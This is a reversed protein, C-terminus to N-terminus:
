QAPSLPRQWVEVDNGSEDNTFAGVRTYGLRAFLRRSAENDARITAQVVRAGGSQAQEEAQRVLREGYGQGAHTEAVSVHRIEWQYWNVRTAEACGVVNGEADTAAVYGDRGRAVTRADYKAGLQNRTNLLNAIQRTQADTIAASRVVPAQAIAEPLARPRSQPVPREQAAPTLVRQWVGLNQQSRANHFRGVQRYGAAALAQQTATDSQRVTIQAIRAGNASAQGEAIQLLQPTVAAADRGSAVALQSLDAQYWQANVTRVAGVVDGNGDALYRYRVAEAQVESAAVTRALQGGRQVLEAVQQAQAQTMETGVYGNVEGRRRAREAELRQREAIEREQQERLRRAEAPTPKRGPRRRSQGPEPQWRTVAFMAAMQTKDERRTFLRDTFERFRRTQREWADGELPVEEPNQALHAGRRSSPIARVEENTMRQAAAAIGLSIKIQSQIVAPELTGDWLRFEVHDRAQGSVGAWNVAAYRGGQNSYADRVARYPASLDNIPSCYGDGRHNGNPNNPNQAMRYLIDQDKAVLNTFRAHRDPQSDYDGIGVHVHGGVSTTVRGGNRRVIECVKALQDWYEPEDYMVPSVIEGSVSGDREFGWKGDNYGQSSHYHAQSASRTLGAAYLERGIAAIDGGSFEIEVGFGRGGDRTGLGGTANERMYPVAADGRAKRTKAADYDAQFAAMDEAYRVPATTDTAQRATRASEEAADAASSEAAVQEVVAQRAQAVDSVTVQDRVGRITVRGIGPVRYLDTISSFPRRAREDIIAQARVAGVGPLRALEALTATNLNMIPVRSVAQAAAVDAQEQPTAQVVTPAPVSQPAAAASAQAAPPEDRRSRCVHASGMFQGCDSCRSTRVLGGFALPRGSRLEHLALLYASDAAALHSGSGARVAALEQRLSTSGTRELYAIYAAMGEVTCDSNGNLGAFRSTYNSVVGATRSQPDFVSILEGRDATYVEIRGDITEEVRATRLVEVAAAMTRGVTINSEPYQGSRRMGSRDNPDRSVEGIAYVRGNATFTQGRANNRRYETGVFRGEDYSSGNYVRTGIPSAIIPTSDLRGEAAPMFVLRQYVAAMEEASHTPQDGGFAVTMGASTM